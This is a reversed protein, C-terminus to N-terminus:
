FIKSYYFDSLNLGGFIRTFFPGLIWWFFSYCITIWLSDFAKRLSLNTLFFAEIKHSFTLVNPTLFYSFEWIHKLFAKWFNQTLHWNSSFLFWPHFYENNKTLYFFSCKQFHLKTWLFIWFSKKPFFAEFKKSM